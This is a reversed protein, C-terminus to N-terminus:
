KVRGSPLEDDDLLMRYKPQEHLEAEEKKKPRYYYVVVVIFCVALASNMVFYIWGSYM